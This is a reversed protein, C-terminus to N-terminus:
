AVVEDAALGAGIGAFTAVLLGADFPLGAAAVAVLGGVACATVTGADELVPVLLALFVLPVVFGVPFGAPVRAGLAVGAVTGVLWSVWVLLAVGLYYWRRSTTENEAFEAISVAYAPDILLHALPWKWRAGLGRFHPAISASYMVLRLNVVLATFVVVVAPADEGVLRAMAVQAAGAYVLASAAVTQLPTIGVGVMAIGTIVGYPLIGLLLPAGDHLGAVFDPHPRRM